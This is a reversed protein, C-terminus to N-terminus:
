IKGKLLEQLFRTLEKKNVGDMQSSKGNRPNEEDNVVFQLGVGDNGWRVARSLVSISREAIDGGVDTNQLTM